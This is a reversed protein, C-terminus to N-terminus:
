RRWLWRMVGDAEEATIHDERRVRRTIPRIVKIKIKIYRRRRQDKRFPEARAVAGCCSDTM